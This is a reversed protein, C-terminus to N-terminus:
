REDREMDAKAEQWEARKEAATKERGSGGCDPCVYDPEGGCRPCDDLEGDCHSCSISGSGDCTECEGPQNWPASSDREAGAPYDYGLARSM